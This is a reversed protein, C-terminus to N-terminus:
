EIKNIIYLISEEVVSFRENISKANLSTNKEQTLWGEIKVKSINRPEKSSGKASKRFVEIKKAMFALFTPLQIISLGLFLGIYGGVNGVLSEIGFAKVQQIEKFDSNIFDVFFKTINENNELKLGPSFETSHKPDYQTETYEYQFKKLEICPKVLNDIEELNENYAKFAEIAFRRMQEQSRCQSFTGSVNWYPPVCGILEILTNKYENDLNIHLKCVNGIKNRRRLVETSTIRFENIYHLDSNVKNTAPWSWKVAIASVFLSKPFNFNIIFKETEPHVGNEFISSKLAITLYKVRQRAQNPLDFTICKYVGHYSPLTTIEFEPLSIGNGKTEPEFTKFAKSYVIYNQIPASVDNFDIDIMRDDWFKGKLFDNYSTSNIGIGYTGIVSENFMETSLQTCFSISPYPILSEDNFKKYKVETVDENKLYICTCYVFLILPALYCCISFFM